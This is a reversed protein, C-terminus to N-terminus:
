VVTLRPTSHVALLQLTDEASVFIGTLRVLNAHLPDDSEQIIKLKVWWAPSLERMDNNGEGREKQLVTRIIAHFNLACCCHSNLLSSNVPPIVSSPSNRPQSLPCNTHLWRGMSPPMVSLSDRKMNLTGNSLPVSCAYWAHQWTAPQQESGM